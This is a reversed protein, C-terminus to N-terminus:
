ISRVKTLIPKEVLYWSLLGIVISLILSIIGFEFVNMNPNYFKYYGTLM